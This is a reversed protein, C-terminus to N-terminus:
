VRLRCRRSPGWVRLHRQRHWRPTTAWPEPRALGTVRVPTLCGPLIRAHHPRPGSGVTSLGLRPLGGEGRVRREMDRERSTEGEGLDAADEMFCCRLGPPPSSALFRSDEGPPGQLRRRCCKRCLHWAGGIAQAELARFASSSPTMHLMRGWRSGNAQQQWPGNLGICSHLRGSSATLINSSISLFFIHM